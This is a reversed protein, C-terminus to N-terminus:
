NLKFHKLGLFQTDNNLHIELNSRPKKPLDFCCEKKENDEKSFIEVAGNDENVRLVVSCNELLDNGNEVRLGVTNEYTQSNKLFNAVQVNRSYVM